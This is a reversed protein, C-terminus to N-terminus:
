GEDRVEPKFKLVREPGAYEPCIPAKRGVFKDHKSCKSPGNSQHDCNQCTPERYEPEQKKM